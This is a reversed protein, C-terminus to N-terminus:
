NSVWYSFPVAGKAEVLELDVIAKFTAGDVVYHIAGDLTVTGPAEDRISRLKLVAKFFLLPTSLACVFSYSVPQDMSSKSMYTCSMVSLKDLRTM